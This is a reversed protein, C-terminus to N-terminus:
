VTESTDYHKKAKLLKQRAEANKEVGRWECIRDIATEFAKDFGHHGVSITTRYIRGNEPLRIRLKLEDVPQRGERKRTLRSLGIIRGDNDVLSNIPLQQRLQYAKQSQTLQKLVREAEQQAKKLGDKTSIYRQYEKNGFSKRVRLYLKGDQGIHRKISM